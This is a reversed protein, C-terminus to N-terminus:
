SVTVVEDGACAVGAGAYLMARKPTAPAAAMNANYYLSEWRVAIEGKEKCLAISNENEPIHMTQRALAM